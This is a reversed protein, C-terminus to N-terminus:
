ATTDMTKVGSAETSSSSTTTTTTTATTTATSGSPPSSLASIFPSEVDPSFPGSALLLNRPTFQLNHIPTSKTFFTKVLGGPPLSQRRSTSAELFRSDTDWLRISQDGSGSALLNGEASYALSWVPGQHGVYSKISKGSGLDWEITTGDHSGSALKAGNPSFALSDVGSTHGTFIRVCDGSQVDWLRVSKDSSGTAVYNSNPHFAVTDVDSLHGAFIRLPTVVNTSWLRATGDHSATAFYHGLPSVAVDWVPFSHGSYVVVNSRTELSWLRATGDQSASVFFRSDPSFSLGYVPGSHGRLAMTNEMVPMLDPNMGTLHNGQLDWIRIASDAFGAVMYEGSESFASTNLGNYTNFFTYMCASPLATSSLPVRARLDTFSELESLESTDLLPVRKLEPVPAEGKGGTDLSSGDGKKRRKSRSSAAEADEEAAAAFSADLEAQAEKFLNVLVPNGDDDTMGSLERSFERVLAHTSEKFSPFTGWAVAKAGTLAEVADAPLGTLAGAAFRSVADEDPKAESVLINIRENVIALLLMFKAEQLFRVLLEFAYSSLRMNYKNTRFTSSLKNQLVHQKHTVSALQALDAGHGGAHDGEFKDMFEKAEDTYGKSVLDLYCHVFVPYM